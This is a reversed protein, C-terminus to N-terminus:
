SSVRIGAAAVPLPGAGGLRAGAALRFGRNSLTIRTWSSFKEDDVRRWIWGGDTGSPPGNASGCAPDVSPM